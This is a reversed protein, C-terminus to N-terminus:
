RPPGGCIGAAGPEDRHAACYEMIAQVVEAHAKRSRVANVASHAIVGPDAGLLQAACPRSCSVHPAALDFPPTV